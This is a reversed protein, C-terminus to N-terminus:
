NSGCCSQYSLRVENVNHKCQRDQEGLIENDNWWNEMSMGEDTV